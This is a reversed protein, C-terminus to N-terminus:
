LNREHLRKRFGFQFDVLCCQDDTAANGAHTRRRVKCFLSIFGMNDFFVRLESPLCSVEKFRYGALINLLLQGLQDTINFRVFIDMDM